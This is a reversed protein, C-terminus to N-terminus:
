FFPCGAPADAGIRRDAGAPILQAAITTADVGGENRILHVHDGGEDVFGDGKTYERPVCDGDYVTVTGATVIILSHGPHSHWGTSGGPIWVNSQVYLDSPGQTKQFSVWPFARGDVKAPSSPVQHNTADIDGFRGLAITSGSFGSAPTAQPRGMFTIIGLAVMAPLAIWTLRRQM